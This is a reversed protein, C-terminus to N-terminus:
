HLFKIFITIIFTSESWKPSVKECSRSINENMYYYYRSSLGFLNMLDKLLTGIKPLLSTLSMQKLTCTTYNIFSDLFNTLFVHQWWLIIFYQEWLYLSTMRCLLSEIHNFVWQRCFHCIDFTSCCSGHWVMTCYM